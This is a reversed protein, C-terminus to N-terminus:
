AKDILEYWNLNIEHININAGVNQMIFLYKAGQKLVWEQSGRGVGGFAKPGEGGALLKHGLETGGALNAAALQAETYTTVQEAVQPNALSLADSTNTSNENRNHINKETGAGLDITPARLLFFEAPSSAAIGIILHLWNTTNPTSFGIASRADDANATTNDFHANFAYGKHIMCHELEITVTAHTAKDIVPGSLYWTDDSLNFYWIKETDVERWRSGNPVTNGAAITPKTESSLGSYNHIAQEFFDAM